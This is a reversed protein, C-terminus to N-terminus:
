KKLHNSINLSDLLDLEYDVSYSLDDNPYEELFMTYYFIADSYSEIYNSCIYGLMFISKKAEESHPYNELVKKFNEIAFTYNNIDNLYIDAIQFQSQSSLDDDLDKDIIAKFSTISEMLRADKRLEAGRRWLENLDMVRIYEEAPIQILWDAQIVDSSLKNLRKIHQVSSNYKKAINWLNDGTKVKYKLIPKEVRNFIKMDTEPLVDHRRGNADEYYKEKITWSSNKDKRELVRVERYGPFGPVPEEEPVILTNSFVFCVFFSILIINIIQNNTHM